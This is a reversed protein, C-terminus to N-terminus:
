SKCPGNISWSQASRGAQKSCNNSTSTQTQKMALVLAHRVTCASCSSAVMVPSWASPLTCSAAARAAEALLHRRCTCSATDQLVLNSHGGSQQVFRLVHQDQQVLLQYASPGLFSIQLLGAHYTMTDGAAWRLTERHQLSEARNCAAVLAFSAALARSCAISCASLTWCARCAWSCACSAASRM